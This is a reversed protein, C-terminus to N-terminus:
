DWDDPGLTMETLQPEVCFIVFEEQTLGEDFCRQYLEHKQSAFGLLREGQYAVWQGRHEAWLQPLEREFSRLAQQALDAQQQVTM